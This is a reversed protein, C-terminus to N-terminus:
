SGGMGGQAAIMTMRLGPIVQGLPSAVMDLQAALEGVHGNGRRSQRPPLVHRVAATVALLALAADRANVAVAPPEGALVATVEGQLVKVVTTDPVAVLQRGGLRRGTITIAGASELEGEVRSLTQKYHHRLWSKWSRHHAAVEGLLADLVADQASQTSVIRPFGNDDGLLGRVALETLAAAHVIFATRTRDYLRNGDLDYAMLYARYPLAQPSTM